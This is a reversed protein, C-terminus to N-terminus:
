GRFEAVTVSAKMWASPIPITDGVELGAGDSGAKWEGPTSPRALLPSQTDQGGYEWEASQDASGCACTM